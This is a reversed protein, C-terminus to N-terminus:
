KPPNHHASLYSDSQMEVMRSVARSFMFREEEGTFRSLQEPTLKLDDTMQRFEATTTDVDEANSMFLRSPAAEACIILKVKHEYLVDVLTIFRRAQNKTSENMSPVDEIFVTHFQKSIAIYDAAGLAADCLEKFRYLAIGRASRPVVLQRSANITITESVVEEGQRLEDFLHYFKEKNEPTLPTLYVNKSRKGTLRYDLGSNLNHVLCKSELFHIFPVFLQRNLGNKYLDNPHRNSTTVLIAGNDFMCAFLRKLIMADSVDTVQFEDFCLLWAEDTLQKSLPPIPDTEDDSKTQRWKHIRKHVDLMFHHFHIRKKKHIPVSDYFLDMLFSKGCGVDGYLYIGKIQNKSSPSSPKSSLISLKSVWKSFNGSDSDDSSVPNYDKIQNYLNQLLKVTERQYKDVKIKGSSILQDYNHLPGEKAAVVDHQLASHISQTTAEAKEFLTSTSSNTPTTSYCRHVTNKNLQVIDENNNFNTRVIINSSRRIIPVLRSQAGSRTLLTLM